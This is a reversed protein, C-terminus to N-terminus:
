MKKANVKKKRARSVIMDGKGTRPFETGFLRLFVAIELTKHTTHM